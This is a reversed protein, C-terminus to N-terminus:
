VNIHRVTDVADLSAGKKVLARVSEERGFESAYM